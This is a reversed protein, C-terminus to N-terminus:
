PSRRRERPAPAPPVRKAAIVDADAIVVPGRKTEVTCGTDSREVLEGLADTAGAEAGEPLAFRVVVRSGLPAERLFRVADPGIMAQVEVM